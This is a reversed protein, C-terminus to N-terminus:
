IARHWSIVKILGYISWARGSGLETLGEWGDLWGGLDSCLIVEVEM